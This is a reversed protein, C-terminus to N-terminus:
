GEIKNIAAFAARAADNIRRAEALATVAKRYVIAARARTKETRANRFVYAAKREDEARLALLTNSCALQDTPNM